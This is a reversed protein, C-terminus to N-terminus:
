HTHPPMENHNSKCKWSTFDELCKLNLCKIEFSYDVKSYLDSCVKRKDEPSNTQSYNFSNLYHKRKGRGGGEKRGGEERGREMWGKRGKKQGSASLAAKRMPMLEESNTFPKIWGLILTPLSYTVLPWVTSCTLHCKWLMIVRHDQLLQICITSTIKWSRINDAVLAEIFFCTLAVTILIRSTKVQSAYWLLHDQTLFRELNKIYQKVTKRYTVLRKTSTPLGKVQSWRREQGAWSAKLAM